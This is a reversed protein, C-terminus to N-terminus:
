PAPTKEAIEAARDLLRSHDAGMKIPLAILERAAASEGENHLAWAATEYAGVDRRVEELDRLAAKFAGRTDGLELRLEALERLHGLDGRNVEQEYRDRARRRWAHAESARGLGELINALQTWYRPRPHLQILRELRHRADEARGRADDVRAKASNADPHSPDITLITDIVGIAEDVRRRELLHEVLLLRVQQRAAEPLRPDDDEIARRYLEEARPAQGTLALARALRSLTAASSDHEVLHEILLQAEPYRGLAWYADALQLRADVEDPGLEIARRAAELSETFLHREQLTRSMGLWGHRHAPDVEVLREFVNGAAQADTHARTTLALTLRRSALQELLVTDAPSSALRKELYRIAAPLTPDIAFVGTREYWELRGEGNRREFLAQDVAPEALAAATALLCAVLATTRITM